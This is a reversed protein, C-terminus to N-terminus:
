EEDGWGEARRVVMAPKLGWIKPRLWDWAWGWKKGQRDLNYVWCPWTWGTHM